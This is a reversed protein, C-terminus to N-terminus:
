AGRLRLGKGRVVISWFVFVLSTMVAPWFSVTFRSIGPAFTASFLVGAHAALASLSAVALLPPLTRRLMASLLAIVALAGTIWAAAIVVPQLLRVREDAELQLVRNPDRWSLALAEYPLPRHTALFENLISTTKPHAQKYAVWLAVYNRITLRAFNAPAHAIRQLAINVLMANQTAEPLSGIAAERMQRACPGELCTEYYVTLVSQISPPAAAIAQRIRAFDVELYDEIVTRTSDLPPTARPADILAAKAFLHRGLLSTALDGNEVHAVVREAAILGFVPLTVAVIFV